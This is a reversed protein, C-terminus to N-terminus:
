DNMKKSVEDRSESVSLDSNQSVNHVKMHRTLNNRIMLKRCITCSVKPYKSKVSVDHRKLNDVKDAELIVGSTQHIVEDNVIISESMKLTKTLVYFSELLIISIYVINLYDLQFNRRKYAIM